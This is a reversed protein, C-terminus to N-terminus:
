SPYEEFLTEFTRRSTVRKWSITRQYFGSWEKFHVERGDFMVVQVLLDLDDAALARSKYIAGITLRM